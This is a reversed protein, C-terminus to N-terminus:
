KASESIAHTLHSLLDLYDDFDGGVPPEMRVAAARWGLHEQIFGAGRSPQYVAHLVVGEPRDALDSVLARLHRATPPIGPLPELHGVSEVPLWEELYDLDEHYTLLPTGPPIQEALRGAHERLERALQQARIKFEREHSPRLLSLREAIHRLVITMLYPHLHFHPNGQAHVHGLNPGETTISPRLHLRDAARLHGDNGSLIRPNGAGRQVVPLWGEELDAGMEILLDARRLLAMFSPRAELYHPDRDPPALVSVTVQDGGISATLVGLTSTTSVVRLPADPSAATAVGVQACTVLLLSLLFSLRRHNKCFSQM